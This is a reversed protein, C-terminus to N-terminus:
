DNEAGECENLCCKCSSEYEHKCCRHVECKCTHTEEDYAECYECFNPCDEYGYDPENIECKRCGGLAEIDEYHSDPEPTNPNLERWEDIHM